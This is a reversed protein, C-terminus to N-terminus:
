MAMDGASMPFFALSPGSVQAETYVTDSICGTLPDEQQVSELAHRQTIIIEKDRPFIKQTVSLSSSCFCQKNEHKGALAITTTM